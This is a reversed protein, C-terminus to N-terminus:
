NGVHYGKPPEEGRDLPTEVVPIIDGWLNIHVTRLGGSPEAIQVVYLIHRTGTAPLVDVVEYGLLFQDFYSQIRETAEEESFNAIATAPTMWSQTGAWEAEMGGKKGIGPGEVWHATSPTLLVVSLGVTIALALIAKIM